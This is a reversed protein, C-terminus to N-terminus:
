RVCHRKVSSAAPSRAMFTWARWAYLCQMSHMVSIGVFDFDVDIRLEEIVDFRDETSVRVLTQVSCYISEDVEDQFPPLLFWQFL